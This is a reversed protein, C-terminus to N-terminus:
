ILFKSIKILFVIFFQNKIKPAMFVSIWQEGWWRPVRIVSSKKIQCENHQYKVYNLQILILQEM